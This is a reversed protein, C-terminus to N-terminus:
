EATKMRKFLMTVRSEFWPPATYDPFYFHIQMDFLISIQVDFGICTVTKAKLVTTEMLKVLSLELIVQSKLM